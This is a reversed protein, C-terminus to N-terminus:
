SFRTEYRANYSLIDDLMAKAKTLDHVFPDLLLAQLAKEKSGAAAADAILNMIRGNLDCIPAVQEPLAGVRMPYVADPAIVGPVEVIVERSINSIAGDNVVDIAPFPTPDGRMM